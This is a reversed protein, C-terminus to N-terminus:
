STTGKEALSEIDRRRFRPPSGEIHVPDLVGRKVYNDITRASVGLLLGAQRASLLLAGTRQPTTRSTNM